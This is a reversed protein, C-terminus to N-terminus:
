DRGVYRFMTSNFGSQNTTAAMMTGQNDFELTTLDNPALFRLEIDAVGRNMIRDPLWRAIYTTIAYPGQGSGGLAHNLNAVVQPFRRELEIAIQYTTLFPRGTNYVADPAATGLIQRILDTMNHQDWLSATPM